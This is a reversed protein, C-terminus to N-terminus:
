TPPKLVPHGSRLYPLPDIYTAGERLGLHLCHHGAATGCHGGLAALTGIEQGATVATGVALDTTVPEYTVRHTPDLRLVLVPKGAVPGAWAVTADAVAVVRSGPVAPLDIGRHGSGYPGTPASFATIGGAVLLPWIWPSMAAPQGM